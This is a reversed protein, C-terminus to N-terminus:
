FHHSLSWHCPKALMKASELALKLQGNALAVLVSHNDRGQWWLQWMRMMVTTADENNHDDHQPRWLQWPQPQQMMTAVMTADDHNHDNCWWPWLWWITMMTVTAWLALSQPMRSVPPLNLHEVCSCPISYCAISSCNVARHVISQFVDNRLPYFPIIDSAVQGTCSSIVLVICYHSWPRFFHLFSVWKIILSGPIPVVNVWQWSYESGTPSQHWRVAVSNYLVTTVILVNWLAVSALTLPTTTPPLPTLPLQRRWM